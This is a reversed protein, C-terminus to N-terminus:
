PGIGVSNSKGCPASEPNACFDCQGNSPSQTAPTSRLSGGPLVTMDLGNSDGRNRYVIRPSIIRTATAAKARVQTMHACRGVGDGTEPVTEDWPRGTPLPLIM